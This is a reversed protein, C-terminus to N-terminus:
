NSYGFQIHFLMKGFRVEDDNLLFHLQGSPLRTGNRYTGNSSSLDTIALLNGLRRFVAHLRSVGKERGGYGILDIDLNQKLEPDGRGVFIRQKDVLHAIPISDNERQILRLTMYRLPLIHASWNPAPDLKVQDLPLTKTAQQPPYLPNKTRPSPFEIKTSM